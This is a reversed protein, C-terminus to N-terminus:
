VYINASFIMLLLLIFFMFGVMLVTVIYYTINKSLSSCLNSVKQNEFCDSFGSCIKLVFTFSLMHLVPAIVIYFLLLISSIGIANKILVSGALVIDLGTSLFGGILPISNSLAYKTARYSIGDHISSVVGQATLFVSFVAISIGIIWKVISTILEIFKNLKISDSLNCIISLITMLGILPVLIKLFVTIITSSLIVVVPKFVSASVGGGSAVMFTLLIPSIVQNFTSIKNITSITSHYINILQNFVLTLVLFICVLSIIEEVGDSVFSSKLKSIIGVLMSISVVSLIIPMYSNFESLFTSTIYTTVSSYNADINGKLVKEIFDFFNYDINKDDIQEYFKNFEEFDIENLQSNIEEDLTQASVLELSPFSFIFAIIILIFFLKKM